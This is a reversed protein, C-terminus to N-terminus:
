ECDAVVEAWDVLVGLGGNDIADITRFGLELEVVRGAWADLPVEVDFWQQTPTKPGKQWLLTTVGSRRVVLTLEDYLTARETDLWLRLRVRAKRGPPLQLGARLVTGGHGDAALDYSGVAPDGYYLVKAEGPAGASTWPRWGKGPGLTAFLQADGPTGDEFDVRWIAPTCCGEAGTAEYVCNGAECRDKTCVSEGDFCEIDKDCPGVRHLCQGAECVDLTTSVGDDCDLAVGVCAGAKCADEATCASGDDCPGGVPTHLCLGTDPHCADATCTEGDDCTKATGGVCLLGACTEDELCPGLDCPEGDAKPKTVCAGTSPDCAGANCPGGDPCAVVPLQLLRLRHNEYDTLWVRGGPGLALNRLGWFRAGGAFGDVWGPQVDGALTTVAFNPSVDRITHNAGDAVILGGDGRAAIGVIQDFQAKTGVANYYGPKGGAVTVIYGGSLRRVRYREAIFVVGPAGVALAGPYALRASEVPGDISGAVSDGLVTSVLGNAVRRLRHDERDAVLVAGDHDVAVDIPDRFAATLAPGDISGKTSGALTSVVLGDSGMAVRRIRRNGADAVVVADGDRDLGAPLLFGASAAPGDAKGAKGSGAFAVIQGAQLAVLRNGESIVVRGDTLEVVGRPDPLGVVKAAGFGPQSLGNGAVTEVWGIGPRCDGELCRDSLTCANGDDCPATNAVHSCTGTTQNCADNTCANGDDCDASFGAKGCPLVGVGCTPKPEVDFAKVLSALFANEDAGDPALLLGNGARALNGSREVGNGDNSIDVVHVKVGFPQGDPSRLVDYKKDIDSTAAVNAVPDEVCQNQGNKKPCFGPAGENATPLCPQMTTRCFFGTDQGDPMCRRAAPACGPNSLPCVCRAGGVCDADSDCMLGYALRKAQVWPSFFKDYFNNEGGDTFVVVTTQRCARAPDRCAGADCAYNPNGCDADTLCAKGDIVVRNRLYEGIYFLTRGIPTGGIARLEPEVGYEEEGNMWADIEPSPDHDPTVPYPVCLVEGLNDWYWTTDPGIGEEVTHGTMTGYGLYYGNACAIPPKFFPPKPSTEAEPPLWLQPFRFMALRTKQPDVTSFAKRFINKSVGMRDCAKNPLSCDPWKQDYCIKGPVKASMSGSTDFMVVLNNVVNTCQGAMCWTDSGCAMGDPKPPHTCGVGTKCLDFTCPDGDDCDQSQFGKKPDTCVLATDEDACAIAGKTCGNPKCVGLVCIQQTDACDEDPVAGSGDDACRMVVTGDCHKAGPKCPPKRCKGDLCLQGAPCDSPLWAGGNAACMAVQPKGYCRTEGPKCVDDVCTHDLCFQEQPCNQDTLCEVCLGTALDCVMGFAGCHSDNSCGVPAVVADGLTVADPLSEGDLQADAVVLGDAGQQRGIEPDVEDCAALACLVWAAGLLRRLPPNRRPKPSRM